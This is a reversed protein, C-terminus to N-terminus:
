RNMTRWVVCLWKLQMLRRVKPKLFRKAPLCLMKCRAKTLPRRRRGYHEIKFITGAGGHIAIAHQKM